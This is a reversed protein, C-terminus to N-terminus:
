AARMASVPVLRRVRLYPVVGAIAISLSIALPGALASLLNLEPYLTSPMHWQKFLAEAEPFALGQMELWHTIAGGLAIGILAGAGALFILELWVMAGIQAPRMGIAMLMGFERTRELVSMLLTNLIIFVVIVILSIYILVSISMDLLIVDHLAPELETWDRVVLGHKRAVEALPSLSGQIDSLHRGAVAVVNARSGMAFDSQFRSLPMEIVQRDLEPAGTSFIGVVKLVDAAVSGDRAAGLMTLKSGVSLKLNRALGAGVVVANTDSPKLYRGQAITTELTSVMPEKAPDVGFVAGGYSRPGDSVIVYTTARPASATVAPLRDLATMVDTPDAIAKRLDPDQSYGPPQIQAFGDILRLVNEKMTGYAGQQLSFLFVTVAGALAISTLSLLTRHPQRWINRWALAVLM